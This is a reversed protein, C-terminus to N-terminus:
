KRKDLKKWFDTNVEPCFRILLAKLSEVKKGLVSDSKAHTSIYQPEVMLNAFIEAKDEEIGTTSYHNLFGPYLNTLVSTSANDQSNKGGAGYRFDASNLSNWNPDEYVKGDDAFDVLHFFEHHIVKRQYVPHYDGRKADLYLTLHEFDPVASRRQGDFSLDECIVIRKLKTAKM